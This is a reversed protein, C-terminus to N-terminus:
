VTNSAVYFVTVMVVNVVESLPLGNMSLLDLILSKQALREESTLTQYWPWSDVATVTM